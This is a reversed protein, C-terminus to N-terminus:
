GGGNRLRITACSGEYEFDLWRGRARYFSGPALRLGPDSTGHSGGAAARCERHEGPKQAGDARLILGVYQELWENAAAGTAYQTDNGGRCYQLVIVPDATGLDV